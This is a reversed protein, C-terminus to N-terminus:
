RLAFLLRIIGILATLFNLKEVTFKFHKAMIKNEHVAYMMKRVDTFLLPKAM